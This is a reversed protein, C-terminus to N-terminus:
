TIRLEEDAPYRATVTSGIRRYSDGHDGCGQLVGLCPDLFTSIMRRLEPSDFGRLGLTTRRHIVDEATVAWEERIAHYVQAWLDPAGAIIRGTADPFEGRYALLRSAEGGYHRFLHDATPGDVCSFHDRTCSWSAGPLPEQGLRLNRPRVTDPLHRLVDLAIRRHTTLKGGAVSVM